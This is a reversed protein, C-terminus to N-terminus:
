YAFDGARHTALRRLLEPRTTNRLFRVSGDCLAFNVGGPHIGRFADHGAQNSDLVLIPATAGRPPRAFGLVMGFVGGVSPSPWSPDTGHRAGTVVGDPVVGAWTADSLGRSREGIMLTNSTGDIVDFMRRSADRAFVGDVEDSAPGGEPGSGGCGVYQAAALDAPLGPVARGAHYAAPGTRFESPCLFVALTTSRVTQSEPAEVSHEMNLGGYLASQELFPLSLAGWAWGPGTEAGEITRGLYGPPFATWADHYLHQGLVLQKLHGQCQARRAAERAALVAPMALAMLLALIAVVVMMEILTIARRRGGDARVLDGM